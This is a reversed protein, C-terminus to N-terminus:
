DLYFLPVNVPYYRIKNWFLLNKPFYKGPFYYIQTFFNSKERTMPLGSQSALLLNVLPRVNKTNRFGKCAAQVYNLKDQITPASHFLPPYWFIKWCKWPTHFSEAVNSHPVSINQIILSNEYIRVNGVIGSIRCKSYM